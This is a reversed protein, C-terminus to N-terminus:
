PELHEHLQPDCRDSCIRPRDQRHRQVGGARRGCAGGGRGGYAPGRRRLARRRQPDRCGGALGELAQEFSRKADTLAVRDQPRKPGALSPVVDGLELELTDSYTPDEWSSDRFMGQEKCYAEVLAVRAPPRPP